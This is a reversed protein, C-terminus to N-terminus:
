NGFVQIIRVGEKGAIYLDTQNSSKEEVIDFNHTLHMSQNVILINWADKPNKPFQYAMLRVGEGEGEGNNNGRGHLPLVLLYYFGYASKVWRM